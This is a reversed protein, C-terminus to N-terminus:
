ELIYNSVLKELRSIRNRILKNVADNNCTYLRYLTDKKDKLLDLPDRVKYPDYANLTSLDSKLRSLEKELNQFEKYKRIEEKNIVTM